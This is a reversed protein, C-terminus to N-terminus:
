VKILKRKKITDIVAQYRQIIFKEDFLQLVKLRSAYAMQEYSRRPLCMMIEMKVALDQPNRVECLFGNVRDEVIERCGPVDTAILPREMAAAELLARPVGERYSPLVICDAASIAPRVDSHTGLYELISNKQWDQLQAAGVANPHSSDILGIIQCCTQPYSTKLLRAAEAYEGIGKDWLLRAILLFTFTQSTSHIPFPAPQFFHIDVGESQLVQCKQASVLKRSICEAKDEENLFWVESSCALGYRYLQKGVWSVLSRRNFLYGLGTLVAIAPVGALHAAVSGYINPKITYHFILDPKIKRYLRYLKWFLLLDQFPNHGRAAIKIPHDICGMHKFSTMAEDFPAIIHIEAGKALLTKIVGGRFHQISWASNACFVIKTSSYM